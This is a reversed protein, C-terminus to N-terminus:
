LREERERAAAAAARLRTRWRAISWVSAAVYFAVAIVFARAVHGGTAWSVIVIVLALAGYILLTDRYPHKPPPAEPLGWEFRRPRSM